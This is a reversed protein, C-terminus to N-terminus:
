KDQQQRPQQLQPQQLQQPQTFEDTPMPSGPDILPACLGLGAGLESVCYDYSNAPNSKTDGGGGGGPGVTGSLLGGLIASALDSKRDASHQEHQQYSRPTGSGHDWLVEKLVDGGEEHADHATPIHSSSSTSPPPPPLSPTFFTEDAGVGALSRLGNLGQLGNGNGSLGSTGMSEGLGLGVGVGAGREGDFPGGPKEGDARALKDGNHATPAGMNIAAAMGNTVRQMYPGGGRTLDPTYDPYSYQGRQQPQHYHQRQYPFQRGQGQGQYPPYIATNAHFTDGVVREGRGADGMMGQHFTTYDRGNQLKTGQQSGQQLTYDRGIRPGSHSSSIRTGNDGPRPHGPHGYGHSHFPTYYLDGTPPTDRDNGHYFANGGGDSRTGVGLSGERGVYGGSGYSGGGDSRAGSGGSSSGVFGDIGSYFDKNLTSVGSSSVHQTYGYTPAHGHESPAGQGLSYPAAARNSTAGIRQALAAATRTPVARGGAGRGSGGGGSASYFAGSDSIDRYNNSPRPQWGNMASSGGGTNGPSSRYFQQVGVGGGSVAGDGGGGGAAAAGGRLGGGSRHAAFHRIADDPILDYTVDDFEKKHLKECANLAGQLGWENDEFHIYGFGSRLNTRQSVFLSTPPHIISCLPYLM